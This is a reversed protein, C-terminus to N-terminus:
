PCPLMRGSPGGPKWSIVAEEVAPLARDLTFPVLGSCLHYDPSCRCRWGPCQSCQPLSRSTPGQEESIWLHILHQKTSQHKTQSQYCAEPYTQSFEAVGKWLRISSVKPKVLHKWCVIEQRRLISASETSYCLGVM